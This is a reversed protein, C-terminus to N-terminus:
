PGAFLQWTGHMLVLFVEPRDPGAARLRLRGPAVRGHAPRGVQLYARAEGMVDVAGRIAALATKLDKTDLARELIDEAAKYLREGRGKATRVEGREVSRAALNKSREVVVAKANVIEADDIRVKDGEIAVLAPFGQVPEPESRVEAHEKAGFRQM